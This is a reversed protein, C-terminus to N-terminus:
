SKSREQEIWELAKAANVRRGDPLEFPAINSKLIDRVFPGVSVGEDINVSGASVICQEIATVIDGRRLPERIYRANDGFCAHYQLHPNPVENKCSAPFIYGMSTDVNGVMNIRYHACMHVKIIPDPSFVENLLTRTKDLDKRFNSDASLYGFLSSHANRSYVAYRDPDYNSLCTHVIFEIISSNVRVIEIAKSRSIYDAIESGDDANALRTEYGAMLFNLEDRQKILVEYDSMNDQIKEENEKLRGRTQELAAHVSSTTLDKLRECLIVNRIGKQVFITDLAALYKDPKEESTSRALDVELETLPHDAFYWPLFRPALSQLIRLTIWSVDRCFVHTVRSEENIYVHADGNISRKIYMRMDALERFGPFADIFNKEVWDFVKKAEGTDRWGWIYLGPFNAYTDVIDSKIAERIVCYDPDGAGVISRISSQATCVRINVTEDTRGYLLARLTAELTWDSVDSFVKLFDFVPDASTISINSRPKEILFM